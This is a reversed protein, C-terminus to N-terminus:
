RRSLEKARKLAAWIADPFFKKRNQLTKGKLKKLGAETTGGKSAVQRVLDEPMITNWMTITGTTTATALLQAEDHSFGMRICTDRLLPMLEEQAIRRAEDLTQGSVIQSEFGPGSGSSATAADIMREKLILTKGIFNFIKKAFILDAKTAFKGKCLCSMGKGIKAPLNPMVRIVRVKGLVGEMDKTSKGAAISIVLKKDISNKIEDLVADFDQPKVALIIADVNDVLSFISKAVKVKAINKTKGAEKDFIFVEYKSAIGKAIASGMNGYGIIGIKTKKAM